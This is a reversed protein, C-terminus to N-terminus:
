QSYPAFKNLARGEEVGRSVETGSSQDATFVSQSLILSFSRRVYVFIGMCKRKVKVRRKEESFILDVSSLNHLINYPCARKAAM